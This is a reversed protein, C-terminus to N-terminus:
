ESWSFTIAYPKGEAEPSTQYYGGISVRATDSAGVATAAAQIDAITTNEVGVTASYQIGKDAM